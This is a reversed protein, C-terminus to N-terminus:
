VISVVLVRTANGYFSSFELAQTWSFPLVTRLKMEFERVENNHM